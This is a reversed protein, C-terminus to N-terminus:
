DLYIKTLLGFQIYASMALIAGIHGFVAILLVVGFAHATKNSIRRGTLFNVDSKRSLLFLCLPLAVVLICSLIVIALNMRHALQADQANKFGWVFNDDGAM